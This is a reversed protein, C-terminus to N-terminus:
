PAPAAPPRSGSGGPIGEDGDGPRALVTMAHAIRDLFAGITARAIHQAIAPDQWTSPNGPPPRYVGALALRTAHEGDPTLTIDADLAPFVEGGPGIAEWRLALRASDHQDALHRSQATVLRPMGPVSVPPAFQALGATGGGYADRSARLLWGARTLKALRTRADTFGIELKAEGGVFMGGTLGDWGGWVLGFTGAAIGSTVARQMGLGARGCIRGRTGPGARSITVLGDASRPATGVLVPLRPGLRSASVGPARRAVTRARYRGPLGRAARLGAGGLRAGAPAAMGRRRSGLVLLDGGRALSALEVAPRGSFAQQEMAVDGLMRGVAQDIATQILTNGYAVRDAYLDGSTPPM